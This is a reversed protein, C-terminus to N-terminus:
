REKVISLGRQNLEIEYQELERLYLERLRLRRVMKIEQFSLNLESKMNKDNIRKGRQVELKKNKEFWAANIGLQKMKKDYFEANYKDTEERVREQIANDPRVGKQYVPKDDLM